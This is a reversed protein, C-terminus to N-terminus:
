AARRRTNRTKMPALRDGENVFPEPSNVAGIVICDKETVISRSSLEEVVPKEAFAVGVKEALTPGRSVPPLSSDARRPSDPTRKKQAELKVFDDFTVETVGMKRGIAKTLIDITKQDDTSLVGCLRGGYIGVPAFEIRVGGDVLPRSAMESYFYRPMALKHSM